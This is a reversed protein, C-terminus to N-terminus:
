SVLFGCGVLGLFVWFAGAGAGASTVALWLLFAATDVILTLQPDGPTDMTRRLEVLSYSIFALLPILAWSFASGASVLSLALCALGLATRAISISLRWPYPLM